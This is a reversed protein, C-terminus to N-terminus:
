DGGVGAVYCYGRGWRSQYDLAGNRRHGHGSTTGRDAREAGLGARNYDRRLKARLGYLVEFRGQGGESTGVELGSFDFSQHDLLDSDGIDFARKRGKAHLGIHDTVQQPIEPLDIPAQPTDPRHEGDAFM